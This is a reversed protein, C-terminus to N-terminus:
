HQGLDTHRDNEFLIPCGYEVKIFSTRLCSSVSYNPFLIGGVNYGLMTTPGCRRNYCCFQHSLCINLKMIYFFFCTACCSFHCKRVISPHILDVNHLSSACKFQFFPTLFLVTYTTFHTLVFLVIYQKILIWKKRKAHIM